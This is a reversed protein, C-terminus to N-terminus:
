KEKQYEENVFSIWDRLVELDEASLKAEPHLFLYDRLPMEGEELVESVSDAKTAREKRTLSKWESFNLEARGEEVHHYLYVNVPFLKTYWPWETLDSHCDYCSRRLIKKVEEPAEIEGSNDGSPVSFPFFQFLVFVTFVVIAIKKKM